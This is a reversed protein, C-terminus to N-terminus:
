SPLPTHHKEWFLSMVKNKKSIKYLFTYNIKKGGRFNIFFSKLVIKFMYIDELHAPKYPSFLEQLPLFTKKENLYILM